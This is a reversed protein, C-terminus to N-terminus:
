QSKAIHQWFKVAVHSALMSLVEGWLSGLGSITLHYSWKTEFGLGMTPQLKLDYGFTIYNTPNLKSKNQESFCVVTVTNKGANFNYYLGLFELLLYLYFM